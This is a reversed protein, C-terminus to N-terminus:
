PISLGAPRWTGYPLSPCPFISFVPKSIMPPAGFVRATLLYILHSLSSPNESFKLKKLRAYYKYCLTQLHVDPTDFLIDIEHFKLFDAAVHKCLAVHSLINTDSQRKKESVSVVVRCLAHLRNLHVDKTHKGSQDTKMTICTLCIQRGLSSCM